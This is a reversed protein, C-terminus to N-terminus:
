LDSQTHQIYGPSALFEYDPTGSLIDFIEFLLALRGLGKLPLMKKMLMNIRERANGRIVMGRNSLALFKRLPEMEPINMFSKGLFSDEFHIVLADAIHNSRPNYKADNVWVHPLKPGMFVLDDEGFYGIHDGVMRRGTSKTVLVLEYEPHYHWGVPFFKGKERFLIFSKDFDRPLRKEVAKM